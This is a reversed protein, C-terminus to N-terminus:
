ALILAEPSYYNIDFKETFFVQWITTKSPYPCLIGFHANHV